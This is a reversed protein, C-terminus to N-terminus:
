TPVFVALEFVSTVALKNILELFLVLVCDKLTLNAKSLIKKAKDLSFNGNYSDVKKVLTVFEKALEEINKESLTPLRSFARLIKKTEFEPINQILKAANEEGALALIAAAKQSPTM